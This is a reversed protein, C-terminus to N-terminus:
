ARPEEAARPLTRRQRREWTEVLFLALAGVAHVALRAIRGDIRASGRERGHADGARARLAGVGRATTALGGLV